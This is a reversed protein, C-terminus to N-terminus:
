EVEIELTKITKDSGEFEVDIIKLREVKEPKDEGICLGGEGPGISVEGADNSLNVVGSIVFVETTDGSHSVTFKTGKVAAVANPTEVEFSKGKIISIIEGFFLKIRSVKRKKDTSIPISISSRPKVEVIIGKELYKILAYGKEATRIEDGERLLMGRELVMEKEPRIIKVDGKVKIAVAVERLEGTVMMLLMLGIM